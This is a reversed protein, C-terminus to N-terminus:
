GMWQLIAAALIYTVLANGANIYLLQMPRKEWAVGHLEGPLVTAAWLVTAVKAAHGVSETGVMHLIVSLFFVNILTALLGIKMGCKMDADNVQSKDMGVLKMWTNGFVNPSYWTFGLAMCAITAVVVALLSVDSIPIM